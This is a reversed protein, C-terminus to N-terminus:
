GVVDVIFGFLVCGAVEGLFVSGVIDDVKVVSLGWEWKCEIMLFLLLNVEISEVM